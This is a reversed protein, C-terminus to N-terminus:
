KCTELISTITSDLDNKWNPLIINLSNEIKTVNLRSNLPRIALTKFNESTVPEIRNSNAKLNIGFIEAKNLVFGALQYWTTEGNPVVHYIGEYKSEKIVKNILAITISSLLSASTPVGHQDNIVMLMEREKALKIIKSIFNEGNNSYVWSTRIIIYRCLSKKILEEGLLKSKGYINLPSPQDEEHWPMYGDGSFVYDTSYHLLLANIKKAEKGIVGLIFGNINFAIDKETEAKEVDTYAAANIIIDPRIAQISKAIGKFNLMEGCYNRDDRALAIVQGLSSLNKHLVSGIQGNVGFLLIKM